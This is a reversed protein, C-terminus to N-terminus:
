LQCAAHPTSSNPLKRLKYAHAKNEADTVWELNDVRNNTPDGDIHNVQPKGKPNPIFAEAVLRHVKILKQQMPAPKLNYVQYRRNHGARSRSPKLLVPKGKAISICRGWNSISYFGQFGPVPKWQEVISTM